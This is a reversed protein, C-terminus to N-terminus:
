TSKMHFRAYLNMRACPSRFATNVRKSVCDIIQLAPSVEYYKTKIINVQRINAISTGSIQNFFNCYMVSGNFMMLAEFHKRAKRYRLGLKTPYDKM